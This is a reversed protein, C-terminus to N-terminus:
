FGKMNRDLEGIINTLEADSMVRSSQLIRGPSVMGTPEDCISQSLKPSFVGTRSASLGVAPSLEAIASNIEEEGRVRQELLSFRKEAKARQEQEFMYREMEKAQLSSELSKVQSDLLSTRQSAETLKSSLQSNQTNLINNETKITSLSNRLSSAESELQQVKSGKETNDKALISNHLELDSVRQQLAQAKSDGIEREKQLQLLAKKLSDESNKSMELDSKMREVGTSLVQSRSQESALEAKAKELEIKPVYNSTIENNLQSVRSSLIEKDVNAAGLSKTLEDIRKSSEDRLKALETGKNAADLQTHSLQLKLNDVTGLLEEVRTPITAIQSPSCGLNQAMNEFMKNKSDLENGRATNVINLTENDKKLNEIKVDLEKIYDDMDKVRANLNSVNMRATSLDAELNANTAKLSSIEAELTQKEEKLQNILEEQKDNRDKFTAVLTNLSAIRDADQKASNEKVRLMSELELTRSNEKKYMDEYIRFKGLDENLRRNESQLSPIIEKEKTLSLIQSDKSNMQATLASILREKSAVDSQLSNKSAEAASLQQSKNSLDISMQSICQEKEILSKQLAVNKDQEEKISSELLSRQRTSDKQARDLMIEKVKLETETSALKQNAAKFDAIIKEKEAAHFSSTDKLVRNQDELQRILLEKGQIENRLNGIQKKNDELLLISTKNIAEERLEMHTLDGANGTLSAGSGIRSGTGSSYVSSSGLEGSSLGPGRSMGLTSFTPSRTALNGYQYTSGRLSDM